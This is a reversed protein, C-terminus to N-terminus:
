VELILLVLILLMVLLSVGWCRVHPKVALCISRESNDLLFIRNVSAVDRCLRSRQTFGKPELGEYDQHRIRSAFIIRPVDPWVASALSGNDARQRPRAPCTAGDPPLCRGTGRPASARACIAPWIRQASEGPLPVGKCRMTAHNSRHWSRPPGPPRARPAGRLVSHGETAAGCGKSRLFM